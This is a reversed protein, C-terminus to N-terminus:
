RRPLDDHLEVWEPNGVLKQLRVNRVFHMDSDAWGKLQNYQGWPEPTPPSEITIWDEAAVRSNPIVQSEHSRWRPDASMYKPLKRIDVSDYVIRYLDIVTEPEESYTVGIM